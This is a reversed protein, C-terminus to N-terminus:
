ICFWLGILGAFWATVKTVKFIQELDNLTFYFVLSRNVWRVVATVKTVQFIQELDNLTLYMILDVSEHDFLIPYQNDSNGSLSLSMETGSSSLLLEAVKFIQELDNLTLRLFVSLSIRSIRFSSFDYTVLSSFLSAAAFVVLSHRM